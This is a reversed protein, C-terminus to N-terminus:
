LLGSFRMLAGQYSLKSMISKPMVNLSSRIDVLVNSLADEQFNM